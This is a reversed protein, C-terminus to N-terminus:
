EEEAHVDWGALEAVSSTATAIEDHVPRCSARIGDLLEQSARGQDARASLSQLIANQADQELRQLPGPPPSPEGARVIVPQGGGLRHDFGGLLTELTQGSMEARAATPNLHVAIANVALMASQMVYFDKGESDETEVSEAWEQFEEIADALEGEDAEGSLSSWALELFQAFWERDADDVLEQYIASGREACAAAFVNLTVEDASQLSQYVAVNRTM